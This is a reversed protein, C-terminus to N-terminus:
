FAAAAGQVRRRSGLVSGHGGHRSFVGKPQRGHTRRIWGERAVVSARKEQWSGSSLARADKPNVAWHPLSEVGIWCIVLAVLCNTVEEAALSRCPVTDSRESEASLSFFYRRM